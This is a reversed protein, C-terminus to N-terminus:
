QSKQAEKHSWEAMWASNEASIAEECALIFKKDTASGRQMNREVDWRAKLAELKEVAARYSIILFQYRGSYQRAAIAATITGIVAVWTAVSAYTTALIGLVVAVAGLTLSLRRSTAIKKANASAQLSYFKIQDDVRQKVYEDVPMPASPLREIKQEETITVPALNEVAKTVKEPKAFLEEPTTIADYPPAGTALLYAQSKFAEAAARARVAKTEPDPSFIEKSFFAALGLAAGSVLALGRTWWSSQETLGWAPLQQSLTGIAAGSISLLLVIDRWRSLENKYGRATIAWTRYQSWVYKLASNLSNNDLTIPTTM